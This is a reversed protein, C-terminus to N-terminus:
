ADSPQGAIQLLYLEERDLEEEIQQFAPAGITEAARLALLKRRQAATAAQVIVSTYAATREASAGRTADDGGDLAAEVRAAM